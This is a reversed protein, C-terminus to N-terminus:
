DTITLPTGPPLTTALKEVQDNPMRVCGNSAQTGILSPNNTGHLAMQPLGGDFDNLSESYGSTALIWPGYVGTPPRSIKETLFFTGTPTFTSNKGIVVKTETLLQDGDYAQLDFTSKTLKLHFHHTSLTVDSRKVWGTQHNPRALLEVQLWDGDDKTVVFVLPNKFYTPNDYAFGEATVRVGASQYGTRPIPPLNSGTQLAAGTGAAGSSTDSAPRKEYVQVEPVAAAAVETLWPDAPAVTTETVESGTDPVAQDKKGSCGLPILLALVLAVAPALRTSTPRHV